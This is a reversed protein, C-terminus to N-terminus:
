NARPKRVWLKMGEVKAVVVVEGVEARGEELRARWSEGELFVIGEPELASRVTARLGVM